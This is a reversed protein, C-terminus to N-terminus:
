TGGVAKLGGPFQLKTDAVDIGSIGTFKPWNRCGKQLSLWEGCNSSHVEDCKAVM